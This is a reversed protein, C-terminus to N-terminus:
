IKAIEESTQDILSHLLKLTDGGRKITIRCMGYKTRGKSSGDNLRVIFESKAIKTVRSWYNLCEKESMGSFIRLTPKISKKPINFIKRM